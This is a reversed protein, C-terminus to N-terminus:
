LAEEPLLTEAHLFLLWEGRTQGATANM